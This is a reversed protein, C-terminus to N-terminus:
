YIVAAKPSLRPFQSLEKSIEFRENIDLQESLGVFMIELMPSCALLLKILLLQPKLGVLDHMTVYLLKTLTQDMYTPAELYNVVQEEYTSENISFWFTLKKLNPCSQILCITCSFVNFDGFEVDALSLSNMLTFTAPLNRPSGGAALLELFFGDLNLKSVRPLAVLFEMLTPTKGMKDCLSGFFCRLNPTDVFSLSELGNNDIIFLSNLNPANINLHGIGSCYKITLRELLGSRSLLPGLTNDGFTTRQFHLRIVYQFGSLESPPKLICNVLKLRTLERCSYICSHMKYPMDITSCLTLDKIGNRSLFLIWRDIDSCFNVRIIEPLRLDFKRIPGSHLLLIKEVANTFEQRVRAKTRLTDAFFQKDLVLQSVTTWIYRWKSSLISTRAADRLPIRELINEIVNKPLDSIFDKTRFHPNNMTTRRPDGGLAILCFWLKPSGVLSFSDIGSNSNIILVELNPAHINLHSIGSCLKITLRRLLGSRSLLTRLMNNGFTVRNFDLVIVNQFGSLERPPRLICNVLKLQTLEQCSYICSHM